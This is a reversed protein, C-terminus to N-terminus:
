KLKTFSVTRAPHCEVEEHDGLNETEALRHMNWPDVGIQLCRTQYKREEVGYTGLAFDEYDLRWAFSFV